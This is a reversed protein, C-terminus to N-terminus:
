KEKREDENEKELKRGKELLLEMIARYNRDKALALADKGSRDKIRIDAGNKLLLGVAEAHNSEVAWHILTRGKADIENVDIGDVIMQELISKQGSKAVADFTTYLSIKELLTNHRSPKIEDLNDRIFHFCEKRLSERARQLRKKVTNLKINLFDAVEQQSYGDIYYLITPIRQTEPLKEIEERIKEETEKKILSHAPDSGASQHHEMTDMLVEKGVRYKIKKAAERSAIKRIWGPFAAYNRLTELKKYCIIFVDQTIDQALAADKVMGFVYGFIIDQFGGVIETFAEQHPSRATKQRIANEILQVLTEM